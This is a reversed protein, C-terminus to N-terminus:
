LAYLKLLEETETDKEEALLAEEQELWCALCKEETECANADLCTYCFQLHMRTLENTWAKM